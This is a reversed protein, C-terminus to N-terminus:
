TDSGKSKAEDRSNQKRTCHEHIREFLRVCADNDSAFLRNWVTVADTTRRDDQYHCTYTHQSANDTNRSVSVVVGGLLLAWYDLSSSEPQRSYTYSAESINRREIHSPPTSAYPPTWPKKERLPHTTIHSGQIHITPRDFDKCKGFIVDALKPDNLRAKLKNLDDTPRIQVCFFSLTTLLLLITNM